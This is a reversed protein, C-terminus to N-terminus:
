DKIFRWIWWVIAGGVFLWPLLLLGALPGAVNGLNGLLDTLATTTTQALALAPAGLVAATALFKRM